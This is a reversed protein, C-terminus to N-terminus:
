INKVLEQAEACTVSSWQAQLMRYDQPEQNRVPEWSDIALFTMHLICTRVASPDALRAEKIEKEFGADHRKTDLLILENSAM